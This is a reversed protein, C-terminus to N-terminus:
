TSCTKKAKIFSQVETDDFDLLLNKMASSLLSTVSGGSASNVFLDPNTSKGAVLNTYIGTWREKTERKRSFLQIESAETGPNQGPCSELCDVCNGCDLYLEGLFAINDNPGIKVLDKPCAVYCAGCQMCLDKTIVEALLNLFSM